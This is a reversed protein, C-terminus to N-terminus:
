SEMDLLHEIVREATQQPHEENPAHGSRDIVRLHAHPLERVLRHALALPFLRDEDGWLVLTKARVRSVKPGLSALDVTRQLVAYAADKAERTRFDDYYSDVRALDLGPHGSFVDNKFYDRFLLRGYLRKFVIPGVLPLLPLRGKLPVDFPYCATDILVLRDVVEPRDAALSLAVSGGMSHGCVHARPVEIASMLDTATEAFAERSYAYREPSPKESGGFGPLDPVICRFREALYPLVPLWEKHSVLYGHLLVLPPGKGVDAFRVRLGRLTVDRLEVAPAGLV